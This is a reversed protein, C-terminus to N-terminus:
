CLLAKLFKLVSTLTHSIICVLVLLQQQGLFYYQLKQSWASRTNEVQIRCRNNRITTNLHLM